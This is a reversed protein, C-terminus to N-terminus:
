IANFAYGWEFAIEEAEQETATEACGEDCFFGWSAPKGNRFVRELTGINGNASNILEAWIEYAYM